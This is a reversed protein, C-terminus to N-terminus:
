MEDPALVSRLWPEPESAAREALAERAWTTNLRRLAWIAARRVVPHEDAVLATLAERARAEEAFHVLAEAVAVRVEVSPHVAQGVIVELAASDAMMGLARIAMATGEPPAGKSARALCLGLSVKPGLAVLTDVVEWRVFPSPDDLAEILIRGERPSVPLSRLRRAASLRQEEDGERLARLARRTEKGLWLSLRKKWREVRDGM